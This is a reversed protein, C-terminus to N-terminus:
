KEDKLLMKKVKKTFWSFITLLIFLICGWIVRELFDNSFVIFLLIFISNAIALEILMFDDHNM